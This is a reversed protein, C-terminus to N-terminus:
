NYTVETSWASLTETTGDAAVITGSLQVKYTGSAVNCTENIFFHYLQDSASWRRVFFWSAGVKRYLTLNASISDTSNIARIYGSCRATGDESITITAKYARTLDYLPQVSNDESIAYGSSCWTVMVVFLLFLTVSRSIAKRM